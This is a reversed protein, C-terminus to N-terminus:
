KNIVHNLIDSNEVAYNINDDTFGQDKLDAKVQEITQYPTTTNDCYLDLITKCENNYNISANDAAYIAEEETYSEAVLANILATRSYHNSNEFMQALTISNATFDINLRTIAENVDSQSFGYTDGTFYAVMYSRGKYLYDPKYNNNYITILQGVWDFTVHSIAYEIEEETFYNNSLNNRATTKTYIEDEILWRLEYELAIQAQENFDVGIEEIADIVDQESVSTYEGAYSNILQTKSVGYPLEDKIHSILKKHWDVDIKKAAYKIEATTFGEERLMNKLHTLSLASYKTLEKAARLANKKFNIKAKEIGKTAQATTYGYNELSSILSKKSYGWSKNLRKADNMASTIEANKGTKASVPKTFSGKYTKGNVKAITRIKYYYTVGSKVKKDEFVRSYTSGDITAVNSYNGDKSTSRYLLLTIGSGMDSSYFRINVYKKGAKVSYIEATSVKPTGSTQVFSSCFNNKDCARVKFYQTTLPKEVWSYEEIYGDYAYYSNSITSHLTYEGNKTNSRYIEYNYAKSIKKIKIILGNIGDSEIKVTPKYFLTKVIVVDGKPGNTTKSGSTKYPQVKYYYTKNPSVKKDTYSTTSSKTITAIKNFAKGNESRLIYYGTCSNKDWSLKVSTSTTSGTLNTVKSLAAYDIKEGEELYEDETTNAFVRLSFTFVLTFILFLKFIKKM